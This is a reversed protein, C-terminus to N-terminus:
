DRERESREPIINFYHKWDLTERCFEQSPSLPRSRVWSQLQSEHAGKGLEFMGMCPTELCLIGMKKGKKRWKFFGKEMEGAIDQM